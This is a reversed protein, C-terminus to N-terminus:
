FLKFTTATTKGVATNAAADTINSAPVFVLAGQSAAVTNGSFTSGVTVTLVTNGSSLAATGGSFSATKTGSNALYGSSGTDSSAAINLTSGNISLFVNANGARSETVTIGSTPVGSVKLAESFTLVLTDGAEMQGATAGGSSTITTVVPAAKDAPATAAFSSLNSAADRIGAANSALAVTFTGVATNAAGAGETIALTAVSGSVSVSSLTGGSPVNAPTWPTTGATYAALTESFTATVQDVKGNTNTDLMQLAVLVPAAKDNPAVAAFAVSNNGAADVVGGTGGAVTFSGVATDAASGGESIPVTAQAGSLTVTSSTNLSGSSPVGALTWLATTPAPASSLTESYTVRVADVKGNGDQDLMDVSLKAPAAKDSPAVATFSASNNGAPDQVGGSGGAVTFSGVATNAAGAGETIPVTATSGSISASGSTNLSGGSPVSALTWLATTPAPAPSKLSESYTVRVADVKGNGDQDLMDISLKVPAAKDNPGAASFSASNNHATDQVGGSGGAVTFSGVATNAAGAGETIPVTATSGSISVSGATNLSGGSPVNSLTWLATTPSPAPSRLAETYTVRVADVKGNGNQDLMDVATMVPAAKDAPPTATFSSHNGAVDAIGSSTSLAVKVTSAATDAAATFGGITLTAHTGSISVSQLTGGSPTNQLTWGTTCPSVCAALTEDFSAVVSDIFGDANSDFMQLSQLAPAAGDSFVFAASAQSSQDGVAWVTHGGESTGAPVTITVAASGGAPVAAPTANGAVTGSLTTGSASDLHFSVNEGDRFNSISGSLAGTTTPNSPSLTLSPPGVVVTASLGSETGRWAGQAPTVSYKWSGRPVSDETCSLAAVVGACNAAVTAASGGAAPYRKVVYGAVPTGNNLADQTWSVTVDQGNASASPTSGTPMTAAAVTPSGHGFASWAAFAVVGFGASLVAAIPLVLRRRNM